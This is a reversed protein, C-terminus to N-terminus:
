SWMELFRCYNTLLDGLKRAALKKFVDNASKDFKEESTMFLPVNSSKLQEEIAGWHKRFLIDSLVEM